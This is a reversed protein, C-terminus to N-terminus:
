ISPRFFQGANHLLRGQVVSCLNKTKKKLPWKLCTKSYNFRWSANHWSLITFFSNTAKGHTTVLVPGPPNISQTHIIHRSCEFTWGVTTKHLLRFWVELGQNFQCLSIEKVVASWLTNSEILSFVIKPTQLWTLGLGPQETQCVPWFISINFVDRLIQQSFRYFVKCISLIKEKRWKIIRVYVNM